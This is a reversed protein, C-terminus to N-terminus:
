DYKIIEFASEYTNLNRLLVQYEENNTEDPQFLFVHREEAALEEQLNDSSEDSDRDVHKEKRKKHTKLTCM